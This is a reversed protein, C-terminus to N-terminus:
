PPSGALRAAAAPTPSISPGAPAGADASAPASAVAPAPPDAAQTSLLTDPPVAPGVTAQPREDSTVVVLVNRVGAFQVAPKVYAIQGLDGEPNESGAVTGVRTGRPFRAGLGSTVVDDGPRVDDTRDLGELRLVAQRDDVAGRLIGRANSRPLVVDVASQRDSLLLVDAYGHATRLVSGMAGAAAMVAMGRQVGDSRGVDIRVTRYAVSAGTAVVRAAMLKAPAPAPTANLFARLRANEREVEDLRESVRRLLAVEMRLQRADDLSEASQWHREFADALTEVVYSMASQLPATLQVVARVAPGADADSRSHAYLVVAPCLLCCVVAVVDRYKSLASLM